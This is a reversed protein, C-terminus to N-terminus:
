FFDIDSNSFDSGSSSDEEQVAFRRKKFARFSPSKIGYVQLAFEVYWKPPAIHEHIVKAFFFTGAQIEEPVVAVFVKENRDVSKL